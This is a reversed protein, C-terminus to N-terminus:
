VMTHLGRESWAASRHAPRTQPASEDWGQPHRARRSTARSTNGSLTGEHLAAAIALEGRRRRMRLVSADVRQQTALEDVLTGGLRTASILEAQETTIIGARVARGLILDPHGYPRAPTVASPDPLDPLDAPVDSQRVRLGARWGAWCLRVYPAPGSLDKTRLATLFGALLESEIDDVLGTRGASLRGAMRTLAPLAMGVTAVVWGAGETRALDILRHWAADKAAYSITPDRLLRGCPSAVM